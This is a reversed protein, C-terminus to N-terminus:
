PNGSGLAQSLAQRYPYTDMYVRLVKFKGDEFTWLNLNDMVLRQGDTTTGEFHLPAVLTNGEIIIATPHAHYAVLTRFVEEYAARLAAKGRIGAASSLPHLVHADDAFLALIGDVDGATVRDFYTRATTEMQQEVLSRAM